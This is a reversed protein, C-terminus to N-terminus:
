MTTFHKTYLDLKKRPNKNLIRNLDNADERKCALM